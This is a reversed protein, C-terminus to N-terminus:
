KDEGNVYNEVDLLTIYDGDTLTSKDYAEWAAETMAFTHVEPAPDKKDVWRYSISGSVTFTKYSWEVTDTSAEIGDIIAQDVIAASLRYMVQDSNVRFGLVEYWKNDMQQIYYKDNYVTSPGIVVALDEAGVPIVPNFGFENGDYYNTGDYAYYNTSDDVVDASLVKGDTPLPIGIYQNHAKDYQVLQGQSLDNVSTVPYTETIFAVVERYVDADDIELAGTTAKICYNVGVNKGHTTSGNRYDSFRAALGSISATIGTTSSNVTVGTASTSTRNSVYSGTTLNSQAMGSTSGYYPSGTVTHSHGPDNITHTHGPDNITIRANSVDVQAGLVQVQDDKFQGISYIDHSTVGSGRIGTGVLNCERLDPLRNSGLMLYLASYQTTDYESGNCPLFGFPVSNSYVAIITGLPLGTGSAGALSSYTLASTPDSPDSRVAIGLM